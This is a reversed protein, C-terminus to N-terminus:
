APLVKRLGRAQEAAALVEALSAGLSAQVVAAVAGEVLPADALLVRGRAQDGLLEIATEASMVASGLDALIVVGDGGDAAWYAEYIKGADTGITGDAAGGAALVRQGPTAIQAALECIGAAIKASHSVIIIGVM